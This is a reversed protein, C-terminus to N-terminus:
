KPDFHPVALLEGQQLASQHAVLGSATMALAEYITVAPERDEVLAMVFENALPGHSGGHGGADMGPPLPVRDPVQAAPKKDWVFSGFEGGVDCKWFVNCRFVTGESTHFAASENVFPNNDYQNQEWETGQGRYGLCSVKTLRKGSVGVYYATSHTPYFMPPLARRWNKWSGIGTVGDHYYQGESYLLKLGQRYLNRARIVDAHFYSTEAMMYKLGTQEKAQKLKECDELTFAAPVASICHKGHKLVEVCHRGHSPADTFVAVADLKDDLVLQELSEYSKTCKFVKMLHERRAPQLDSVAEVVCNPHQNWPFSSGFGGGVVGLRIKRDSVKQWVEQKAPEAASASALMRAASSCAAVAALAGAKTLLHRRSLTIAESSM